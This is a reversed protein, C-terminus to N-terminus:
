IKDILYYYSSEVSLITPKLFGLNVNVDEHGLRLKAVINNLVKNRLGSSELCGNKPSPHNRGLLLGVYTGLENM